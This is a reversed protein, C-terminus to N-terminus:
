ERGITEGPDKTQMVDRVAELYGYGNLMDPLLYSGEVWENWANITILPPQEPHADTYAKA